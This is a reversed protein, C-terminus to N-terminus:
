PLISFFATLQTRADSLAEVYQSTRRPMESAAAKNVAKKLMRFNDMQEADVQNNL